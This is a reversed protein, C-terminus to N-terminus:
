EYYDKEWRGISSSPPPTSITKVLGVANQKRPQKNDRGVGPM